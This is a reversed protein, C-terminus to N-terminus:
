PVHERITHSQTMSYSPCQMIYLAGNHCIAEKVKTVVTDLYKNQIKVDTASCYYTVRIYCDFFNLDLGIYSSVTVEVGMHWSLKSASLTIFKVWISRRSCQKIRCTVLM